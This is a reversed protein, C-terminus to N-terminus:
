GMWSSQIPQVVRKPTVKKQENIMLGIYRFADAGHSYEDHLPKASFMKTEPDVDYRYHRLCQLGEETNQRDFYCRSFITRAANISDAVPVRDLIQVKMGTARMESMSDSRSVLPRGRPRDRRRSRSNVGARPLYARFSCVMSSRDSNSRTRQILM